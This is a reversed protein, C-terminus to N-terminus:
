TFFADNASGDHMVTEVKIVAEEYTVDNAVSFIEAAIKVILEHADEAGDGNIIEVAELVEIANGITYGLPQNMSTFAVFVKRDFYEGIAKMKQALEKAEELTKMFAGSGFKMDIFIFKSGSAIKKSMISAAILPISDVTGTVDRLSYIKKDAPVLDETTNVIAMGSNNFQKVTEAITQEIRFGPISELKDATGGTFGLGRGTIKVTKMGMAGLIPVLALSVKDGVGGTSHKDFTMNDDLDYINGSDLLAQTYDFIERDSMGNIKVAM